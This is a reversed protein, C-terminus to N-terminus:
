RVFVDVIILKRFVYASNMEMIIPITNWKMKTSTDKTVFYKMSSGSFSMVKMVFYM